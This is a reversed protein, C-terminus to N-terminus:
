NKHPKESGEGEQGREGRGLGFDGGDFADGFVLEVVAHVYQQEGILARRLDCHVDSIHDAGPVLPVAFGPHRVQQLVHHELAGRMAAIM